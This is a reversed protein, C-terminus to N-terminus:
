AVEGQKNNRRSRYAFFGAAGAMIAAASGILGVGTGGTFPLLQKKTDVITRSGGADDTPDADRQTDAFATAM